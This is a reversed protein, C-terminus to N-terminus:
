SGNADTRQKLHQLLRRKFKQSVYTSPYNIHYELMPIFNNNNMEGEAKVREEYQEDM